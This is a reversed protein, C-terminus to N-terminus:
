FLVPLREPARERALEYAAEFISEANPKSSYDGDSGYVTRHDAATLTRPAADLWDFGGQEEVIQQLLYASTGGPVDEDVVLLANTKQLSRSILRPRDFPLLTQM